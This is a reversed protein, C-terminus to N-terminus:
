PLSTVVAEVDIIGHGLRENWNPGETKRAKQNLLYRLKDPPLITQNWGSRIAAVIGATLGCAASTGTSAIYPSGTAGVFPESLNGLSADGVERFHSPACLDPKWRSLGPQGPGQSSRGVWIADTRVAGTTLVRRHSNAGYISHGPGVDREGCRIDPCYQGCNGAAFIIDIGDDVMQDILINLPHHPNETYDGLPHETSRDFISWANVLIWPGNWPPTGLQRLFEILQKLQTFAGLADGIFGNVDTIRLPLLPVDYFTADPAADVINRVMMLGHGRTTAGPQPGNNVNVLGGGYHSVAAASFGEDIVVINVGRGTLNRQRLLASNTMAAADSRDGFLLQDVNAPCFYESESLSLDAGVGLPAAMSSVNNNADEVARRFERLHSLDRVDLSLSLREPNPLTVKPEFRPQWDLSTALLNFDKFGGLLSSLRGSIASHLQDRDAPGKIEGTTGQPLLDSARGTIVQRVMDIAGQEGTPIAPM